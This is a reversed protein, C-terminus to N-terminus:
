NYNGFFSDLADVFTPFDLHSTFEQSKSRQYQSQGGAHSTNAGSKNLQMLSIVSQGSLIVSITTAPPSVVANMGDNLHLMIFVAAIINVIATFVFYLLGQDRLASWLRSRTNSRMIRLCTLILITLDYTVTYIFAIALHSYHSYNFRCTKLEEDWFAKAYTVGGYVSFILQGLAMATLPAAILKKYDWIIVTRIMLNTTACTSAILGITTLLPHVLECDIPMGKNRDIIFLLCLVVLMSYRGILYSVYYWRFAIKRTILDWEFWLTNLFEWIYFGLLFVILQKYVFGTVELARPSDWVIAM